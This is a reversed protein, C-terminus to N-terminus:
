GEGGSEGGGEGGGEGGSEEGSGAEGGSGEGGSEEGGETGEGTGGGDSSGPECASIVITLSVVIILLVVFAAAGMAGGSAPAMFEAMAPIKEVDEDRWKRIINNLAKQCQPDKLLKGAALEFGKAGSFNLISAGVFRPLRVKKARGRLIKMEEPCAQSLKAAVQLFESTLQERDV